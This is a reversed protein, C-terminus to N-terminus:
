AQQWQILMKRSGEYFTISDEHELPWYYWDYALGRGEQFEPWGNWSFFSAPTALSSRNVDWSYSLVPLSGRADAASFGRLLLYASADKELVLKVACGPTWEIPNAQSGNQRGDVEDDAAAISYRHECASEDLRRSPGSGGARRLEAASVLGVAVAARMLM